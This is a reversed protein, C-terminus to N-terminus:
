ILTGGFIHLLQYCLQILISNIYPLGLAPNCYICMQVIFLWVIFYSDCDNTTPSAM